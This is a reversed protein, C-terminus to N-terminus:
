KKSKENTIVYPDIVLGIFMEQDKIAEENM